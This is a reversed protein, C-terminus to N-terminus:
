DGHPIEQNKIVPKDVPITLPFAEILESTLGRNLSARINVLEQLKYSDLPGQSTISFARRFLSYDRLKQTILPYKDFHDLIVLLGKRDSVYYTVSNQQGKHIRGIGGLFRQIEELMPLDREHLHVEFIVQM